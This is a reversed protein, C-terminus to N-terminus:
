SAILAREAVKFMVELPAKKGTWLEFSAAGQYVLMSLGGLTNAGVKRADRILATDVPNYVLDYVLADRPILGPDLPSVGETLSYRMGIATCNVLLNCDHLTKVLEEEGQSSLSLSSSWPLVNIRTNDGYQLKLSDRLLEARSITRNIVLLSRVGSDMLAFGVARAAGGAGLLAVHKGRPDFSSEERLARLFGMADTNYGILRDKRKIITNVAGIRQAIGEIDDLWSIVSEKHPITVNAGLISPYRLHSMAKELSDPPVDWSEYHADIHYYDLAAQQFSPSISHRLPHGLLVIMSGM